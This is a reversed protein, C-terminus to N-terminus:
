RGGPFQGSGECVRIGPRLDNAPQSKRRVAFVQGFAGEGNVDPIDLCLLDNGGEAFHIFRM